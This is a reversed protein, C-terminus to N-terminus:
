DFAGHLLDQILLKIADVGILHVAIAAPLVVVIFLVALRKLIASPRRYGRPDDNGCHPCCDASTSVNQHCVYCEILRAM